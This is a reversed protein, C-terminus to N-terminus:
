NKADPPWLIPTAKGKKAELLGRYEKAQPRRRWRGLADGIEAKLIM